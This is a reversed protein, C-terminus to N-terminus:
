VLGSLFLMARRLENALGKYRLASDACGQPKEM